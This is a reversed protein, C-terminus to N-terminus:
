PQMKRDETLGGRRKWTVVGKGGLQRHASASKPGHSGWELAAADQQM